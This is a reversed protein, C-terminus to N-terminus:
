KWGKENWLYDIYAWIGMVIPILALYILTLQANNPLDLFWM